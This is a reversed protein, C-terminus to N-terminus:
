GLRKKCIPLPTFIFSFFWFSFADFFYAANKVVASIYLSLAAARQSGSRMKVSRLM